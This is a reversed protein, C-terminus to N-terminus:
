NSAVKTKIAFWEEGALVVTLLVALVVCIGVVNSCGGCSCPTVACCCVVSLGCFQRVARRQASREAVGVSGM